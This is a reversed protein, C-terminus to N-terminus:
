QAVRSVTTRNRGNEKSQYLAEDARMVLEEASHGHAPFASIGASITIPQGTPSKTIALQDRLRDAMDKARGLGSRNILIGFEEGGYRFCVDEESAVLQMLRSLYRLVEDGVVHGYTDNVLKFHDIDILILAFPMNSELWGAMVGDFGRRNVLGTLEDVNVEHRLHTLDRNMSQLAIKVSQSLLRVEYYYSHIDPINEAPVPKLTAEDSFRALTHLPKAIRSAVWWALVLILLLFPLSFLLMRNVLLNLPKDIVEYPTQSVIGWSSSSEYAYGALFIEGLSNTVKQSGTQGSIVKRVVENQVVNQGVRQRDPHFILDGNKEVVYVYSGDGFFHEKLMTSLVNKEELYITGGVFGKYAGNKDVIPASILIILRGTTARYPESIFPKKIDVAKKSQESTLKDGVSIGTTHPSIAQVVREHDAVVISNFYQTNEQFLDDFLQRDITSERGSIVAIARINEQMTKLLENANSAMKKSYSENKNLYNDILSTRNVQVASTISMLMTLLIATIVLLSITFRLTIGKKM